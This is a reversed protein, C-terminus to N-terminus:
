VQPPFACFENGEPDAMITWKLSGDTNRIEHLVRAGLRQLRELEAGDPLNIDIHVRNKVVKPEPVKNYWIRLGGEPPHLAISQDPPEEPAAPHITYGLVAAWFHAVRHPDTCDFCLDRLRSTAM